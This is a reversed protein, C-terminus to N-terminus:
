SGTRVEEEEVEEHENMRKRRRISGYFNSPKRTKRMKRGTHARSKRFCRCCKKLFFFDLLCRWNCSNAKSVALCDRIIKKTKKENIKYPFSKIFGRKSWSQRRKGVSNGNRNREDGKQHSYIAEVRIRCVQNIYTPTSVFSSVSVDSIFLQKTREFWPMIQTAMIKRSLNHHAKGSRETKQVPINRKEALRTALTM